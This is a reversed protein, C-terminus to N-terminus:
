KKRSLQEILHRNIKMLTECLFMITAANADFGGLSRRYVTEKEIAKQLEELEKLIM